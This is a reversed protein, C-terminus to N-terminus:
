GTHCYMKDLDSSPTDLVTSVAFRRGYYKPAWGDM